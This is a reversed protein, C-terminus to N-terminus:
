HTPSFTGQAVDCDHRASEVTFSSQGLNYYHRLQGAAVTCIGVQNDGPCGADGFSGKMTKCGSKIMKDAPKASGAAYEMCQSLTAHEDCSVNVDVTPLPAADPAPPPDKRQCALLGLVCLLTLPTKVLVNVGTVEVVEIGSNV